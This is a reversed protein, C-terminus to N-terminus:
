NARRGRSCSCTIPRADRNLSVHCWVSSFCKASQNRTPRKSPESTARCGITGDGRAMGLLHKSITSCLIIPTTALMPNWQTASSKIHWGNLGAFQMWEQIDTVDKDTLPRPVTTGGGLPAGIEHLLMPARLMEDYGLADQMGPDNRLAILANALNPLPKPNKGDGLICKDRWSRKGPFPATTM